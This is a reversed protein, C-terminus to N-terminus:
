PVTCVSNFGGFPSPARDASLPDELWDGDVVFKYEYTGPSLPVSIGWVGKTNRKLAQPTWDNFSGAVSVHHAVPADISFKHTKKRTRTGSAASGSARARPPATTKAQAKRDSAM